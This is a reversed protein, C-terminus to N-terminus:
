AYRKSRDHRLAVEGARTGMGYRLGPNNLLRLLARAMGAIDGRRYVLGASNPVILAVTLPDAPAVVARGASLAALVGTPGSSTSPVLVDAATLANSWRPTAADGLLVLQASCLRQVASFAATLQETHAVDDFPGMAVVTPLDSLGASSGAVNADTANVQAGASGLIPDADEVLVLHRAVRRTLHPMTM